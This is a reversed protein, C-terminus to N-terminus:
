RSSVRGWTVSIFYLKGIMMNRLTGEFYRTTIKNRFTKYILITYPLELRFKWYPKLDPVRPYMRNMGKVFNLLIEQFIKSITITNVTKLFAKITYLFTQYSACTILIGPFSILSDIFPVHGATTLFSPAYFSNIIFLPILCPSPNHSEKSLITISPITHM